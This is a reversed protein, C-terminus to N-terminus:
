QIDKKFNHIGGVLQPEQTLSEDEPEPKIESALWGWENLLKVVEVNTEHISLKSNDIVADFNDYSSLASESSHSDKYLSRTLKIVKGGSNQIAEAENPFRCDDVVAILPQEIEIDKILRSRWVDEYIKRCIDTGFFQLFERATVRGPKHYKLVGKDILSKIEKQKALKEDTIVAPMEEWRFITFSNKQSDKGYAQDRAIEFLGTSIEKLPAAFSYSKIYPWMSYAAWEAFEPDTRGVDLIANAAESKGDAGTIKTSVVLSGDDTIGFDDVIRQARLQYGHLFNTCTSKGAQKNGAFALIRSKM